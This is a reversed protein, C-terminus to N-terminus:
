KPSRFYLATFRTPSCIGSLHTCPFQSAGGLGGSHEPTTPPLGPHGGPEPRQPGARRRTGRGKPPTTQETAERLARCLVSPWSLPDPLRLGEAGLRRSSFSTFRLDDQLEPRETSRRWWRPAPPAGSPSVPEM